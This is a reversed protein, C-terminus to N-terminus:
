NASRKKMQPGMMRYKWDAQCASELDDTLCKLSSWRSVFKKIQKREEKTHECRKLYEQNKEYYMGTNRKCARFDRWVYPEWSGTMEYIVGSDLENFDQVIVGTLVGGDEGLYGMSGLVCTAMQSNTDDVNFFDVAQCSLNGIHGMTYMDDYNSTSRAAPAASGYSTFGNSGYSDYSGYSDSLCNSMAYQIKYSLTTNGVCGMVGAERDICWGDGQYDQSAVLAINTLILIFNMTCHISGM